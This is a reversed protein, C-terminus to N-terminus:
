KEKHPYWTVWYYQQVKKNMKWEEESEYMKQTNVLFETETRSSAINRFYKLLIQAVKLDGINQKKKFWRIQSQERQFDCIHIAVFQFVKQIANMQAKSFDVVFYRPSWEASSWTKFMSQAEAISSSNEIKAKAIRNMNGSYEPYTTIHTIKMTAPCDGKIMPQVLLRRKMLHDHNVQGFIIMCLNEYYVTDVFIQSWYLTDSLRARVTNIPLIEQDCQELIKRKSEKYYHPGIIRHKKIVNNIKLPTGFYKIEKM